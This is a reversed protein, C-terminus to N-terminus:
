EREDSLGGSDDGVGLICPLLHPLWRALGPCDTLRHCLRSLPYSMACDACCVRNSLVSGKGTNAHSFGFLIEVGTARDTLSSSFLLTNIHTTYRPDPSCPKGSQLHCLTPPFSVSLKACCIAGDHLPYYRPELPHCPM